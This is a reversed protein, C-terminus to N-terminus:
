LGIQRLITDDTIKDDDSLLIAKSLITSLTADGDFPLAIQRKGIKSPVICIHRNSDAMRVAASGLHIQYSRRKGQVNLYKDDLSLQSANKLRPLLVELMARRTQASATLDAQHSWHWYRDADQRWKDPHEADKGKDEWEPDLSISAVSTFLDCDRLIESLVRPPVDALAVPAGRGFRAKDDLDHFQLRDTVLYVYSGGDTTPGDLGAPETWYEAQLGFDALKTHTPEDDSTDFGVRHTSQWGNATGLAMLQHQRVVHGAFRNSYTATDREAPTLTYIETTVQRFPQVVGKAMLRIRWRGCLEPATDLPHWLHVTSGSIDVRQGNVDEYGGDVPLVVHTTTDTQAVWLLRRAFIAMTGHNAYNAQWAEVSWSVDRRFTRELRAKHVTLDQQITKLRARALKVGEADAEALMKPVSKRVVGKADEWTLNPKGNEVGILAAGPGVELRLPGPVLGHDAMALEELADRTIGRTEAMKILAKELTKKVGAFAVQNMVRAIQQVGAIGPLRALSLVTANGLKLNVAGVGPVRQYCRLALDGLVPAASDAPALQAAWIMTQIQQDDFQPRPPAEEAHAVQRLVVEFHQRGDPAFGALVNLIEDLTNTDLTAKARKLWSQTPKSSKTSPLLDALKAALDTQPISGDIHRLKAGLTDLFRAEIRAILDIKPRGKSDFVDRDAEPNKMSWYLSKIPVDEGEPLKQRVTELNAPSCQGSQLMLLNEVGRQHLARLDARDESTDIGLRTAEGLLRLYPVFQANFPFLQHDINTWHGDTNNLVSVWLGQLRQLHTRLHKRAIALEQQHKNGAQKEEPEAALDPCLKQLLPEAAKQNKLHNRIGAALGANPQSIGRALAKALPVSLGSIQQRPNNGGLLLELLAVSQENNFELKRRQLKNVDLVGSWIYQLKTPNIGDPAGQLGHVLKWIRKQAVLQCRYFDLLFQALSKPDADALQEAFTEKFSRQPNVERSNGDYRATEDLARQMLAGCTAYLVQQQEGITEEAQKMDDIVPLDSMNIEALRCLGDITQFFYTGPKFSRLPINNLFGILADKVPEPLGNEFSRRLIQEYVHHSFDEASDAHVTLMSLAEAKTWTGRQGVIREFEEAKRDPISPGSRKQLSWFLMIARARGIQAETLESLVQVIPEDITSIDIKRDRLQIVGPMDDYQAALFM